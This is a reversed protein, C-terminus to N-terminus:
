PPPKSNRLVRMRDEFDKQFKDHYKQYADLYEGKAKLYEPDSCGKLLLLKNKIAQLKLLEKHESM